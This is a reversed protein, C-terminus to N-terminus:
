KKQAIVILRDSSNEDFNNLDFDGFTSLIKFDSKSLLTKFDEIKIAQVRETHKQTNTGDSFQINKYIHKGDFRRDIEFEVGEVIKAESAVLNNVVKTANMFDIVLIGENNLMRHISSLMKLNESEDDFYGFSTFLNFVVDFNKNEIVERMDHVQFNLGSTKLKSASEISNPSLDVGLVNFGNEHLMKAHRGKGCALDLVTAQPLLNLHNVLNDIFKKAEKDDRNKYLLHYYPSDFWTAFWEKTMYCLYM